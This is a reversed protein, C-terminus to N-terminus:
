SLNLIVTSLPRDLPNITYFDFMEISKIILYGSIFTFAPSLIILTNINSREQTSTVVPISLGRFNPVQNKKKRKIQFLPLISSFFGWFVSFGVLVAVKLTKNGKM